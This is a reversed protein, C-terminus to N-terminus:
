KNPGFRVNLMIGVKDNMAYPAIMVPSSSIETKSHKVVIGKILLYLGVSQAATWGICLFNIFGSIKSQPPDVVDAVIPGIVPIAFYSGTSAGSFNSSAVAVYLALGYSVGFLVSGTVLRGKKPVPVDPLPCPTLTTTDPMDIIVIPKKVVNKKKSTTSSKRPKVTAINQIHKVETTDIKESAKSIPVTLTDSIIPNPAETSPITDQLAFSTSICIVIGLLSTFIVSRKFFQLM